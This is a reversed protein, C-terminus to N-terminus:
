SPSAAPGLAYAGILTNPPCTTTGAAELRALLPEDSARGAGSSAAVRREQAVGVRVTATPLDFPLVQGWKERDPVALASLQHTCPLLCSRVGSRTRSAVAIEPALRIPAM